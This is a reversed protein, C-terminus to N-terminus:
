FDFIDWPITRINFIFYLENNNMFSCKQNNYINLPLNEQQIMTFSSDRTRARFDNLLASFIAQSYMIGFIEVELFYQHHCKIKSININFNRELIRFFKSRFNKLTYYFPTPLHSVTSMTILTFLHIYHLPINKNMCVKSYKSDLLAFGM